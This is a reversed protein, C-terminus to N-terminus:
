WLATEVGREKVESPGEKSNLYGAGKPTGMELIPIIAECSCMAFPTFYQVQSCKLFYLARPLPQLM